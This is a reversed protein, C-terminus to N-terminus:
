FYNTDGSDTLTLTNAGVPLTSTIYTAQGSGNLATTPLPTTGGETMTVSLWFRKTM